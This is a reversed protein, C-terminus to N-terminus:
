DRPPLRTAIHRALEPRNGCRLLGDKVSMYRQLLEMLAPEDREPLMHNLVYGYKGEAGLGVACCGNEKGELAKCECGGLCNTSKVHVNEMGKLRERLDKFWVRGEAGATGLRAMQRDCNLCVWLTVMSM